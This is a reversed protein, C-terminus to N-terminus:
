WAGSFRADPVGIGLYRFFIASEDTDVDQLKRKLHREPLSSVYVVGVQASGNTVVLVM